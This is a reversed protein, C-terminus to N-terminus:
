GDCPRGRPVCPSAGAGQGDETGTGDDRGAVVTLDKKMGKREGLIREAIQGSEGVPEVPTEVQGRERLAQQDGHNM